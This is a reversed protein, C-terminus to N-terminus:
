KREDEGERAGNNEPPRNERSSVSSRAEVAEGSRRRRKLTFACGYMHRRSLIVFFITGTVSFHNGLGECIRGEATRMERECAPKVTLHIPANLHRNPTDDFRGQTDCLLCLAACLPARYASLSLLSLTLLSATLPQLAKDNDPTNLSCSNFLSLGYYGSLLPHIHPQKHQSM